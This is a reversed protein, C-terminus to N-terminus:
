FFLPSPVLDLGCSEHPMKLIVQKVHEASVSHFYSFQTGSFFVSDASQPISDLNCRITKTKFTFIEKFKDPHYVLSISCPFATDTNKGM